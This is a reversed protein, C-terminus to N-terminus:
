EDQAKPLASGTRAGDSLNSLRALHFNVDGFSFEQFKARRTYWHLVHDETFGVAGHIQHASTVIRGYAQSVWSKAIAVERVAPIGENLYWAAQYTVYKSSELDMLMDACRHQVSQFAGIPHGFAMREKAYTLTLDLVRQSGGVMEACTGVAAKALVKEIYSWGKGVEGLINQDSVQVADFTVEYLKDGSITQLPQCSVGPDQRDVLFLTIGEAPNVSEETRAVCILYDAYGADPVFLKRGKLIYNSEQATARTTVAEPNYEASSETLALTLRMKGEAIAPLYKQKQAKDGAEMIASAGLVLTSFFPSILCVQGMEKLVTILDLFDGIGGYEEPISLAMWGLEAMKNWLTQTYGKQDRAMEQILKDSYENSLFDRASKQLMEQQENLAFDM